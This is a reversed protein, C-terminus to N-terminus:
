ADAYPGAFFVSGERDFSLAEDLKVAARPALKAYVDNLNYTEALRAALGYVTAEWWEGPVDLVADPDTVDELERVYTYEVTEGSATALVPWVYFRAAERQRDYYFQTPTGQSTKQPLNDYETRTIQQMPIEIGNRKFRATVIQLPRVPDLTHAASTTLTLSGSTYAWIQYGSNQWSKLMFDLEDMAEALDAAEPDEDIATVQARRLAATCMQRITRTGTVAM